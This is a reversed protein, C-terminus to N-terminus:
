KLLWCGFTNKLHYQAWNVHHITLQLLAETIIIWGTFWEWQSVFIPCLRVDERQWLLPAVLPLNWVYVCTAVQPLYFFLYFYTFLYFSVLQLGSLWGLLLRFCLRVLCPRWISDFLPKASPLYNLFCILKVAHEMKQANWKMEAAACVSKPPSDTGRESAVAAACVGVYVFLLSSARMRGRTCYM